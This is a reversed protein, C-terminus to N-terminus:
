RTNAHHWDRWCQVMADVNSSPTDPFLADVPSLIFGGERGFADLAHSVAARTEEASGRALTVSANVGGAVAMSGKFRAAADVLNVHDQVPDVYYLLDVGARALEEGLTTVGTTMVYGFLKGHSHALSALEAIRPQFHERFLRPSWFDTSSYWGRQVVMDVGAALALETRAMDVAQIIDLLQEFVEPHEMCLMVAGEAGAFWVTADAGFASWAQLLVGRDQAFPLLRGMRDRVWDIERAGPAQYLWAIKHVDEPQSILHQTARAVNYDEILPVHKPQVVWGSQPDEELWKVAHKLPGDPTEYERVLVQYGDTAASPPLTSDAWHAKDSTAWPISIDLVDDIGESLWADVRHLDDAVSWPEPLTHLHELRGSFWHAVEQGERQWRLREPSTYGFTWCYLPVHDPKEHRIAALMREKSTM